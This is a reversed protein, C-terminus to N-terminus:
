QVGNIIFVIMNFSSMSISIFMSTLQDSQLTLMLLLEYNILDPLKQSSGEFLEAMVTNANPIPMILTM